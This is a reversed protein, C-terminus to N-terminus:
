ILKRLIVFRNTIQIDCSFGRSFSGTSVPELKTNQLVNKITWVFICCFVDTELPSLHRWPQAPSQHAALLVLEAEGFVYDAECRVFTIM